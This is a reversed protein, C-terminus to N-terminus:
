VSPRLGGGSPNNFEDAVAVQLSIITLLAGFIVVVANRMATLGFM